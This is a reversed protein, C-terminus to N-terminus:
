RRRVTLTFGALEPGELSSVVIRWTEPRRAQRHLIASFSEEGYNDFHIPHNQGDYLYLCADFSKDAALGIEYKKFLEAPLSYIKCPRRRFVPDKATLEDKVTATGDADFVLPLDKGPAPAPGAAWNGGPEPARQVTLTFDGGSSGAAAGTAIIRYNGSERTRYGLRAAMTGRHDALLEGKSNLLRLEPAFGQSALDIQYYKRNEMVLSYIKYPAGDLRADGAGLKGAHTFRGDRSLEMPLAAAGLDFGVTVTFEGRPMPDRGSVVIRYTGPEAPAYELQASRNGAVFGNTASVLYVYPLFDKSRVEVQYKRGKELAVAFAKYAKAFSDGPFTTTPDTGAFSSTAQSPAVDQLPLVAGPGAVEIREPEDPGLGAIPPPPALKVPPKVVPDAARAPPPDVGNNVVFPLLRYGDPTRGVARPWAVRDLYELFGDWAEEAMAAAPDRGGFDYYYTFDGLRFGERNGRKFYKSRTNTFSGGHGQEHVVTGDPAVLAVGGRVAPIAVEVEGARFKMKKGTTEYVAGKVRLLWGGPGVPYGERRLVATLAAVAADNRQRSGCDAEVRVTTGPRFPIAAADPLGAPVATLTQPRATLAAVHLHLDMDFVDTGILVHKPGFWVPMGLMDSRFKVMGLHKGTKLDWDHLEAFKESAAGRAALRGTDASLAIDNWRRGGGLRGRCEGTATDRFELYRADQSWVILWNRAPALYVPGSLDEGVTYLTKGSAVELASLKGNHLVVLFKDDACRGFWLGPREQAAAPREDRLKCLTRPTLAPRDWVVLDVVGQALALTGVLTGDSLILSPYAAIKRDAAPAGPKPVRAPALAEAPPLVRWDGPVGTQPDLRGFVRSQRTRMKGNLQTTGAVRDPVEDVLDALILPPNGPLLVASATWPLEIKTPLVPAKVEAGPPVTWPVPPPADPDKDDGPGPAASGQDGGAGAQPAPAPPRRSTVNFIIVGIVLLAVLGLVGGGLGLLLRRQARARREQDQKKKKKKKAAARAPDQEERDHEPAPGPSGERTRV